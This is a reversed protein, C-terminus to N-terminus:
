YKMSRLGQQGSLLLTWCVRFLATVRPVAAAEPKINVAVVSVESDLMSVDLVNICCNSQRLEGLRALGKGLAHSMVAKNLTSHAVAVVHRGPVRSGLLGDGWLAECARALVQDPSEGGEVPVDTQGASWAANLAELQQTCESRPLGELCGFDQECLERRAARAVDRNCQGSAIFDATEVARRLTSSAVLDLKVLSMSEGLAAAQARGTPNLATDIGGGQLLRRQNDETEGHRCLFLRSHGPELPPLTCLSAFTTM